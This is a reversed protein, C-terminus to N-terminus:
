KKLLLNALRKGIAKTTTSTLKGTKKMGPRKTRVTAFRHIRPYVACASGFPNKRHSSRLLDRIPDLSKACQVMTLLLFLRNDLRL